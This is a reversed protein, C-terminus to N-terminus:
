VPKGALTSCPFDPFPTKSKIALPFGPFKLFISLILAYLLWPIKNAWSNFHGTTICESECHKLWAVSQPVYARTKNWHPALIFWGRWWTAVFYSIDRTQILYADNRCDAWNSLRWVPHLSGSSQCKVCHKKGMPQYQRSCSQDLTSISILYIETQHCTTILRKGRVNHTLAAQKTRAIFTGSCAWTRVNIQAQGM